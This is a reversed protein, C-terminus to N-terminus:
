DQRRSPSRLWLATAAAAAAGLLLWVPTPPWLAVTSVQDAGIPEANTNGENCGNNDGHWIDISSNNGIVDRHMPFDANSCHQGASCTCGMPTAEVNSALGVGEHHNTLLNGVVAAPAAVTADGTAELDGGGQCNEATIPMTNANVM